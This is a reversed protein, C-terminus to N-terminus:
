TDIMFCTIFQTDRKQKRKCCLCAFFRDSGDDSDDSSKMPRCVMAEDGHSLLCVDLTIIVGVQLGLLSSRSCSLALALIDLGVTM